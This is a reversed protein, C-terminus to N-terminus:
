ESIIKQKILYFPLYLIAAIKCLFQIKCTKCDNRPKVYHSYLPYGLYCGIPDFRKIEIEQIKWSSSDTLNFTESIVEIWYMASELEDREKTVPEIKNKKKLRKIPRHNDRIKIIIDYQSHEYNSKGTKQIKFYKKFFDSFFLNM